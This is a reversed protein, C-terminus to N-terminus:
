RKRYVKQQQVFEDFDAAHPSFSLSEAAGLCLFGGNGLSESFLGLARNQLDRDFYILVNRCSVLQVEAFVADTALSHDAFVVNERLTRDM